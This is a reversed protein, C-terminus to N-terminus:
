VHRPPSKKYIRNSAPGRFQPAVLSTVQRTHQPHLGPLAELDGVVLLSVEGLNLLRATFV